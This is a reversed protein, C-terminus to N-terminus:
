TASIASRAPWCFICRACASSPLSTRLSFSSPTKAHRFFGGARFGRRFDFRDNRRAALVLALPTLAFRGNSGRSFNRATLIRRSPFFKERSACCPIKRRSSPKSRRCFANQNRHFRPVRRVCVAGLRFERILAVGAAIMAGRMVLAGLIGWFLVRHQYEAPVRFSSFISRSSWSTTSRSRFNSSTAPPSSRRGGRTRALPWRAPSSCPWRSGCVREM